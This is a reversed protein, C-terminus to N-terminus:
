EDLPTRNTHTQTHRHTITFDRYHPPGAGVPAQQAMYLFLCPFRLEKFECLSFTAQYVTPPQLVQLAVRGTEKSGLDRVVKCLLFM